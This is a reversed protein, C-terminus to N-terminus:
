GFGLQCYIFFWGMGVEVMSREFCSRMDSRWRIGVARDDGCGIQWGVLMVMGVGGRSGPM